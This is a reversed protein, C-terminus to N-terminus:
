HNMHLRLYIPMMREPIVANLKSQRHNWPPASASGSPLSFVSEFSFAEGNSSSLLGSIFTPSSPSAEFAFELPNSFPISRSQLSKLYSLEKGLQTKIPLQISM